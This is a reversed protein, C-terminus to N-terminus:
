IKVKKIKNQKNIWRCFNCMKNNELLKELTNLEKALTKNDFFKHIALHCDYCVEITHTAMFEKSYRKKFWKNNHLTQPILHHKETERERSCTECKNNKM